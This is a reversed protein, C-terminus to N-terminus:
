RSSGEVVEYVGNKYVLFDKFVTMVAVVPGRELIERKINEESSTVCYDKM